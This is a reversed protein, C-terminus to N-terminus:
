SGGGDALRDRWGDLLDSLTVEFPITPSWGLERKLKSADGVIRPLDSPRLRQEKVEVGVEVRALDILGDLVARISRARGSAVNYVAGDAGRDLLGGYAVVVDRVDSFDREAELNGVHIVPERMGVEIEAIQRAFDSCVFRDSQGPGTHNFPRVIVTEVAGFARAAMEMAAKSTAYPNVPALPVDEGVPSDGDEVIGYVESSSVLLVRPSASANTAARLVHVSGMVNVALTDVPNARSDPVFTQAALHVIGDPRFDEVADLVAQPDTVDVPRADAGDPADGGPLVTGLVADGHDLLHSVLHQGVFGDAGTVLVRRM